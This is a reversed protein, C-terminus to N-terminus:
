GGSDDLNFALVGTVGVDKKAPGEAAFLDPFVATAAWLLRRKRDVKLGLVERLGSDTAAFREIQGKMDIQWIERSLSGIFIRATDPDYAIGEPEIGTNEVIVFVEPPAVPLLNQLGNAALALFRENNGLGKFEPLAAADVRAGRGVAQELLGLAEEPRGNAALARATSLLLDPHDPARALTAQGHELWGKHDGALHAERTKVALELLTPVATPVTQPDAPSVAILLLAAFSVLRSM